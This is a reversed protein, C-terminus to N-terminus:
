IDDTIMTTFYYKTEKSYKAVSIDLGALYVCAHILSDNINRCKTKLNSTKRAEDIEM